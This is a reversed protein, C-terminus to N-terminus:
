PLEVDAARLAAVISDAEDKPIGKGQMLLALRGLAHKVGYEFRDENPLVVAGPRRGCVVCRETTTEDEIRKHPVPGHISTVTAEPRDVLTDEERGDLSMYEETHFIRQRSIM